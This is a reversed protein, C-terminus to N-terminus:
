NSGPVKSGVTPLNEFNLAPNNEIVQVPVTLGPTMAVRTARTVGDNIMMEGNAGVTVQIPPMGETSEGYQTIQSSLKFFDAGESMTPPLRLTAPNVEVSANVAANVSPVPSPQNQQTAPLTLGMSLTALAVTNVGQAQEQDLGLNEMGTVAMPTTSTGTVTQVLGASINDAALVAGGVLIADSVWGIPTAQSAVWAGGLALTGLGAQGLGAVRIAGAGQVAESGLGYPDAFFAPNGNGYAYLNPFSDIGAPDASLFRKQDASYFRRQMAYVIPTDDARVAVGGLWQYPTSTPGSHATLEGYPTYAFQDSVNGNGDTLALTNGQEDAHFYHTTSGDYEIQCVLGNPGWVYYHVPLGNGDVEALMNKLGARYNLVFYNTVNGSIRGIRNGQADYLFTTVAAGNTIATLRDACDWGYSVTSTPSTVSLLDGDANFSNTTVNGQQDTSTLLRDALDFTQQKSKKVTPVPNLGANINEQFKYGVANRTIARDVFHNGGGSPAHYFSTVRNESDYGFTASTGNPYAIGTLRGDNDYGFFTQKGTWVLVNTLRDQQDYGYWVHNNGPYVISTVNGDVDYGFGIGWTVGNVHGTVSTLRDCNDYGFIITSQATQSTTVNSNADYGLREFSNDAYVTNTLRNAGDYALRTTRTM